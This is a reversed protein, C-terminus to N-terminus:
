TVHELDEHKHVCEMRKGDMSRYWIQSDIRCAVWLNDSMKIVFLDEDGLENIAKVLKGIFSKVVKFGV